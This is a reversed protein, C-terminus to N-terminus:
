KCIVLKQTSVSGGQEVRLLYLGNELLSIDWTLQTGNAIQEGLIRGTLDVLQLRADPQLGDVVCQNQAPNPSLRIGSAADAPTNVGVVVTVTHCGSTDVPCFSSTIEVAYSGTQSPQFSQDTAGPIISYGNSCDLWQYSLEAMYAVLTTGTNTVSDFDYENITLNLTVLSDCTSGPLITTYTGSQTYTNGDAAWTYSNCATISESSAVENITLNLYITSDCGLSNPLVATYNGSSTYTMGNAPWTYSNCATTSEYGASIQNITLHITLISDCGAANTLVETYTGSTGLLTGGPTTYNLCSTATITNYTVACASMKHVFADSGTASLNSVGPGFNFDITGEFAGATYINDSNDVAMAHLYPLQTNKAWIFNGSADLAVIFGLSSNGPHLNTLNFTGTGPDFDVTSKFHGNVIVEGNGNIAIIQGNDPETGGMRKAWGFNGSADLKLVFIDSGGASTLDFNAVGPDFDTTGLFQGTTYINNNADVTIGYGEQTNTGGVQKAWILNGAASLKCIFADAVGQSTLNFVGANPDFDETGVFHGTVLLDGNSDLTLSRVEEGMAKAWVFMGSADYKCIYGDQGSASATLNFPGGFESNFNTTGYFYGAVYSNGSADVVIANAREQSTGTLRRAWQYNGSNDLKTIFVDILGSSYLTQSGLDISETYEGVVYVNGNADLDIACGRQLDSNTNFSMSRTAWVFNGSADWKSFFADDAFFHNTFFMNTGAGPDLDNSQYFYGTTYINGNADTTIGQTGSGGSGEIQKAWEFKQAQLQTGLLLSLCGSLIAKSNKYFWNNNM